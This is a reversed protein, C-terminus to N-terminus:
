RVAEVAEIYTGAIERWSFREVFRHLPEPDTAEAERVTAAISTPDSTCYRLRDGFRRRAAGDLQVVPLGAAGYELVKLTHADDVLSLGVDARALLGPVTEHPVTGLFTVADSRADAAAAEDELSGTGAIVLTWDDLKEAATLMAKVNYLPELGGVYIIVNERIDRDALIDDAAALADAGPDAFREYDVGLNTKVARSSWREVRAREEEYVFLTTNALAFAIDEGVRVGGVLWQPHTKAFQRIPDIHDVVFPYGLARFATGALAGARTTGVVVDYQSRERLSQRVTQPTTGRLTVDYGVADMHDAIRRRGVSIDEPKDPTLWLVRTITM